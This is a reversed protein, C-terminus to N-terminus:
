SGGAASRYRIHEITLCLPTWTNFMDSLAAEPVPLREQKNGHKINLQLFPKKKARFICFSYQLTM